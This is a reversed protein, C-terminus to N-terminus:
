KPPWANTYGGEAVVQEVASKHCCANVYFDGRNWGQDQDTFVQVEAAIAQEVDEGDIEYTSVFPFQQKVTREIDRCGTRHVVFELNRTGTLVTFSTV